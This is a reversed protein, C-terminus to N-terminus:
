RAGGVLERFRADGKLGKWWWSQTEAFGKRHAPNLSVYRKLLDFAEATDSATGIILRILAERAYLAGQPDDTRNGRAAELVHRASDRMGARAIGAAVLMKDDHRSFQWTKASALQGMREYDRWAQDVDVKTGPATLNLLKCHLFKSDEPFRRRGEDCWKVADTFNELDYSTVWLRWIVQDTATMYADEEYARRAALNAEVLNDNQNYVRSLANWASAKSPNIEVATKLDKQAGDLLAQTERPNTTPARVWKELRSIGRMELADANRPDAELARSAYSIALDLWPESDLPTSAARGAALAVASRGVLPQAWRSDLAAAQALLTDAAAFTKRATGTDAHSAQAEGDKRLREARQFLMWANANSTGARVERLRIEEGVRSRLFDSVQKAVSDRAALVNAIPLEFTKRNLDTGSNGDVLRVGIRLKSGVEDVSGRVVTGAGLVRAVSDVDAEKNRFAEVGSRSVVDLTNIEGLQQILAETLGDAVYTLRNNPTVDDFYLVAIRRPDLGGVSAGASSRPRGWLTWSVLSIGILAALGIGAPMVWKPRGKKTLAPQRLSRTSARRSTTAYDIVCEKLEDAFDALTPFRDAPSKALARQVADEVEDPITNRVIQMSPVAAMSHRAMISQANPGTFPPQGTLMEYLVCALSYEDSRGDIAKEAFSQEPSMYTPTGLSVGTQTLAPGASAMSTVARAIGFDAVVAHGEEILINEPKIDRHVINRRHAYDLASAVELTIRLAEDIQLQKERDIRARLSEGEVFPMVYYLSGGAEGSDYLPLIHPHSLSTAIQIERRFREAGLAAALDEHLVKIAVKRGHKVDRALFVTAMGGRGLESEVDYRDQLQAKLHELLEAV